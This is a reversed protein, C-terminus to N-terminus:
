FPPWSSLMWTVSSSVSRTLSGCARPPNGDKNFNRPSILACLVNSGTRAQWHQSIASVSRLRALRVFNAFSARDGQGVPEDDEPGCVKATNRRKRAERLVDQYRWQTRISILMFAFCLTHAGIDLFAYNFVRLGYRSYDDPLFDITLNSTYEALALLTGYIILLWMFISSSLLGFLAITVFALALFPASLYSPYSVCWV